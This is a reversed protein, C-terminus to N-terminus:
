VMTDKDYPMRSVSRNRQPTWGVTTVTLLADLIPRGGLQHQLALALQNFFSERRLSEMFGTSSPPPVEAFLNTDKIPRTLTVRDPSDKGRFDGTNRTV